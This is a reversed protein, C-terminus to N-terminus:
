QQLKASQPDTSSSHSHQIVGEEGDDLKSKPQRVILDYQCLVMKNRVYNKCTLMQCMM